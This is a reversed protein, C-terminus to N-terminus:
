AGKQMLDSSNKVLSFIGKFLPKKSQDHRRSRQADRSDGHMRFPSQQGIVGLERWLTAAYDAAALAFPNESIALEALSGSRLMASVEDKGCPLVRVDMVGLALMLSSAHEEAETPKSTSRNLIIKLATRSVGKNKLETFIHRAGAIDPDKEDLVVIVRTALPAIQQLAERDQYGLDVVACAQQHVGDKLWDGLDRHSFWPVRGVLSSEEFSVQECPNRNITLNKIPEFFPQFGITEPADKFDFGFRSCNLGGCPDVEFLTTAVGHGASWCALLAAIVSTGVGGRPSLMAVVQHDLSLTEHESIPESDYSEAAHHNPAHLQTTHSSSRLVSVGDLSSGSTGHMGRADASSDNGRDFQRVGAAALRPVPVEWLEIRRSDVGYAILGAALNPAIVGELEGQLLVRAIANRRVNAMLQDLRIIPCITVEGVTRQLREVIAQQCAQDAVVYWLQGPEMRVSM